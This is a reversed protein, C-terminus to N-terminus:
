DNVAEAAPYPVNTVKSGRAPCFCLRARLLEAPQSGPTACRVEGHKQRRLAIM